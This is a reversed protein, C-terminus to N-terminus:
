NLQHVCITCRLICHNANPTLQIINQEAKQINDHILQRMHPITPMALEPQAQVFIIGGICCVLLLVRRFLQMYNLFLPM